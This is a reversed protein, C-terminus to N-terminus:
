RSAALSFNVAIETVVEVAVGNLLTPEYRWQRVASLAAGALLPPGSVIRLNRIGGDAGIIAELKVIGESRAAKALPPYVPHPSYTLRAGEVGGGVRFPATGSGVTKTVATRVPAEAAARPPLSVAEGSGAGSPVVM